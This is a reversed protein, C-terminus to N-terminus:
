GFDHFQLVIMRITVPPFIPGHENASPSYDALMCCILFYRAYWFKEGKEKEEKKRGEKEVQIRHLDFWDKEREREREREGDRVM